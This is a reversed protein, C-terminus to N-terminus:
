EKLSYIIKNALRNAAKELVAELDSNVPSNEELLKEYPYQNKNTIYYAEKEEANTNKANGASFDAKFAIFASVMMTTTNVMKFGYSEPYVRLIFGDGADKHDDVWVAEFGEAELKDNLTDLFETKWTEKKILPSLEDTKKQDKGAEVSSQIGAGILGGIAAGFANSLVRHYIVEFEGKGVIEIYITKTDAAHVSASLLFVTAIFHIINRRFM